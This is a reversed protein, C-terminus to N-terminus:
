RHPTVLVGTGKSSRGIGVYDFGYRTVHEPRYINRLDVLVPVKMTAHLRRFSLARFADWETVLVLADADAAIAYPDRGFAVDQLLAKAGDIGEPDFVAIQAGNDQLAQIITLAPADRLDDTNPKFTLGLVAIKKGRVSGGCAAIVKRAM